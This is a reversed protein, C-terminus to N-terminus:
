RGFLSPVDIQRKLSNCIMDQFKKPHRPNTSNSFGIPDKYVQDLDAYRTLFVSGDPMTKVPAPDRLARYYRYPDDHFDAPLAKLDFDRAVAVPDFVGSM